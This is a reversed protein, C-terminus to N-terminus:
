KLLDLLKERARDYDDGRESWPVPEKMDVENLGRPVVSKIIELVRNRGAKQEALWM